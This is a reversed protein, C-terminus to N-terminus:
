CTSRKFIIKSYTELSKAFNKTAQQVKEECIRLNNELSGRTLLKQKYLLKLHERESYSQKITDANGLSSIRNIIKALDTNVEELEKDLQVSKDHINDLVLTFSEAERLYKDITIMHKVLIISTTDSTDIASLVENIYKIADQSLHQNCVSCCSKKLTEELLTKNIKPPLTGNAEKKDILNKTYKLPKYFNLLLMYKRLISSEEQELERKRKEIDKERADLNDRLKEDEAVDPQDKLFEDLESIRIEARSIEDKVKDLEEQTFKLSAQATNLEQQVRKM